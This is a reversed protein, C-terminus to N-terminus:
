VGPVSNLTRMIDSYEFTELEQESILHASGPVTNVPNSSGFITIHEFDDDAKDAAMVPLSLAALVASSLLTKKCSLSM